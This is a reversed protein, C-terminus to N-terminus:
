RKTREYDDCLADKEGKDGGSEIDFGDNAAAEGGGRRGEESQQGEIGEDTPEGFSFRVMADAFHPNGHLNSWQVFMLCFMTSLCSASVLSIHLLFFFNM